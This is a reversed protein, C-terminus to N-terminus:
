NERSPPLEGASTGALSPVLKRTGLGRGGAKGYTGIIVHAVAMMVSGLQSLTVSIAKAAACAPVDRLGLHFYLGGMDAREEGGAM